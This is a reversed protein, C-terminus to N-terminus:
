HHYVEKVITQRLFNKNRRRKQPIAKGSITNKTLLNKLKEKTLKFIDDRERRALLTEESFDASVKM